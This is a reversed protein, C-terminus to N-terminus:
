RELGAMMRQIMFSFGRCFFGKGLEAGVVIGLAFGPGLGALEASRFRKNCPSHGSKSPAVTGFSWAGAVIGASLGM